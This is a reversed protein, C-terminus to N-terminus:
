TSFQMVKNRLDSSVKNIIKLDRKVKTYKISTLIEKTKKGYTLNLNNALTEVFSAPNKILDDYDVLIKNEIKNEYDYFLILYFACRDIENMDLWLDADKYEIWFPIKNERYKYNPWNSYDKKLADNTFWGKAVLSNIVYIPNRSIIVVDTNPYYNLLKKIFPAVDPIKYAIKKNKALVMADLKGISKRKRNEIDAEEKVSYISTLDNLNHNLNRGAIANILFDEYLSTEYLLKWENESINKILTLLSLISPPEMLYEISEFSHIIQGLISTGSRATGTIAISKEVLNYAESCAFLDPKNIATKLNKIEFIDDNMM